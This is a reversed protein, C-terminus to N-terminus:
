KDLEKKLEDLLAAAAGIAEEAGLLLGGSQRFVRFAQAQLAARERGLQFFRGIKLSKLARWGEHQKQQVTNSLRLSEKALEESLEMVEASRAMDITVKNLVNALENEGM